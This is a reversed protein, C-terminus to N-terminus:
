GTICLPTVRRGSRAVRTIAIHNQTGINEDDKWRAIKARGKFTRGFDTLTADDAFTNLLGDRDGRNTADIMSKIPADLAQTAVRRDKDAM